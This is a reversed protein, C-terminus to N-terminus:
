SAGNLWLVYRWLCVVSSSSLRLLTAIARGNTRDALFRKVADHAAIVFAKYDDWFLYALLYTFRPLQQSLIKWHVSNIASKLWSQFNILDNIVLTVM